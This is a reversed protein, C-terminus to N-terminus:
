HYTQAKRIYSDAESNKAKNGLFIFSVLVHRRCRRHADEAGTASM